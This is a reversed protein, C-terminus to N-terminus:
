LMPGFRKAPGLTRIEAMNCAVLGKITLGKDALGLQACHYTAGTKPWPM